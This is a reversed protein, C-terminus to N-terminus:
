DKFVHRNYYDAVRNSWQLQSEEFEQGTWVFKQFEFERSVMFVVTTQIDTGFLLNHAMSYASLQLKYDEVWERKKPRITTKFDMIAPKGQFLGVLDTTGAWLNEFHLHTEVGWVEDVDCLGENIIVDAMKKAMIRGYNTGGPRDEGLVYAELHAHMTTGLGAAEETVQKAKDEGIRKKWAILHTMDKTKGLITTVSPIRHGAGDVYVRGDGNGDQRDLKKYPYIPNLKM